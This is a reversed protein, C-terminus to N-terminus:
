PKGNEPVEGCKRMDLRTAIKAQRMYILKRGFRSCKPEGTRQGAPLPWPLVVRGSYNQRASKLLPKIKQRTACLRLESDTCREEEVSCAAYKHTFLAFGYGPTTFNAIPMKRNSAPRIAAGSFRLCEIWSLFACNYRRFDASPRCMRYSRLPAFQGSRSGNIRIPRRFNNRRATNAPTTKPTADQLLLLLLVVAVILDIEIVGVLAVTGRFECASNVAVTFRLLVVVEVPVVIEVLVATVQCTFPVAPPFEVSPV